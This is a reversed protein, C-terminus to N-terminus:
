GDGSGARRGDRESSIMGAAKLRRAISARSSDGASAAPQPAASGDGAALGAVVAAGAPAVAGALVGRGDPVATALGADPVGRGLAPALGAAAPVGAASAPWISTVL